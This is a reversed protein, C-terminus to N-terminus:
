KTFLLGTFDGISRSVSGAPLYRSTYFLAALPQGADNFFDQLGFRFLPSVALFSPHPDAALRELSHVGRGMHNVWM